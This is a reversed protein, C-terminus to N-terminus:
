KDHAAPRCLHPSASDPQESANGSRLTNDANVVIEDLVVGPDVAYVSLTHPAKSLPGIPYHLPIQNALFGAARVRNIAVRTESSAYPVTLVKAPGGNWRIAIRLNM